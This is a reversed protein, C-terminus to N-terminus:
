LSVIDIPIYYHCTNSVSRRILFLDWNLIECKYVLLYRFRRAIEKKRKRMEEIRIM